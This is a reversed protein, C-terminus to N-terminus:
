AAIIIAAVVNSDTGSKSEQKKHEANSANRSHKRNIGM